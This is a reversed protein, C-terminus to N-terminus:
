YDDVNIFKFSNLKIIKNILLQGAFCSLKFSKNYLFRSLFGGIFYIILNM